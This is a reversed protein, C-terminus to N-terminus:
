RPDGARVPLCTSRETAIHQARSAASVRLHDRSRATCVPRMLRQVPLTILEDCNVYLEASIGTGITAVQTVWLGAARLSRALPAFYGDGSAIVVTTRKRALNAVDVANVLARDAADPNNPVLIRRATAPLTFFAPVANYRNAAVTIQDHDHIGVRRVYEAWISPCLTAVDGGCLNEIDVFHAVPRSPAPQPRTDTHAM